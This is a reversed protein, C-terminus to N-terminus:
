RRPSPATSPRIPRSISTSRVAPLSSPGAAPMAPFPRWGRGALATNGMYRIRDHPVEHPLLGIRQANSRRIFNGFGGGVLVQGLDAPRVGSRHLLVATGARIAGTALQVERIDRQTLVIPPSHHIIFSSDRISPKGGSGGSGLASGHVAAGLGHLRGQPTLLGHRLLEAVLDILGSGCIGVPPGGGIVSIRLPGDNTSATDLPRSHFGGEGGAGRGCAPSPLNVGEGGAATGCAPSPLNVGEGGAGRGCAPSPLNVGEGGAATGCASSPLDFVVREIAGLSGRMGCSIRAGEFAPGAATSTASLKGDALLVIEGNTGVDILLSPGDGEALGTALIGAVTDGGVFGGVVPMLYAGGRPHVHLGLERALCALGAGAAPVFPTEGLASPDVGSFIQQM